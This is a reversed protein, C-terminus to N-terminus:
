VMCHLGVCNGETDEVWAVYGYQGIDTKGLVVQGGHDGARQTGEEISEVSFYIRVGNGSPKYQTAQVLAGTAGVAKERMPFWAMPLDNVTHLELAVGLVAEYFSKARSMDSVPIEFWGVPNHETAM